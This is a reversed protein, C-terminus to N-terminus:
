GVIQGDEIENLPSQPVNSRWQIVQGGKEMTEKPALKMLLQLFEGYNEPENAWEALRPVGGVLEFTELFATEIQKRSVISAVGADSLQQRRSLQRRLALEFDEM